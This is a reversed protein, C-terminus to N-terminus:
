AFAPGQWDEPPIIVGWINEPHELEMGFQSSDEDAFVIHAEASKGTNQVYLVIRDGIKLPAAIRILAGHLNVMLTEGAYAFREGQVEVLVDHAIRTSRRSAYDKDGAYNISQGM